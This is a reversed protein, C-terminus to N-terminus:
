GSVLRQSRSQTETQHNAATSSYCHYASLYHKCTPRIYLVMKYSRHLFPPNKGVVRVLQELNTSSGLNADNEENSHTVIVGQM